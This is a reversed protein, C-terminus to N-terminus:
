GLGWPSLGHAGHPLWPGAPARSDPSLASAQTAPLPMEWDQGQPEAPLTSGVWSDESM